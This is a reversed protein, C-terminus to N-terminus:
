GSSNMAEVIASYVIVLQIDKVLSHVIRLNLVHKREKETKNVGINLDLSWLIVRSMLMNHSTYLITAILTTTDGKVM